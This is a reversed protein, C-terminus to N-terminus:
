PRIRATVDIRNDSCLFVRRSEAICDARVSFQYRETPSSRKLDHHRDLDEWEMPVALTNALKRPTVPATGAKPAIVLLRRLAVTPPLLWIADRKVDAITSMM